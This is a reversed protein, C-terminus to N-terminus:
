KANKVIDETVIPPRGVPRECVGVPGLDPQIRRRHQAVDGLLRQLGYWQTGHIEGVVGIHGHRQAHIRVHGALGGGTKGHAHVAGAAHPRGHIEVRIEQHPRFRRVQVDGTDRSEGGLGAGDFPQQLRNERVERGMAPGDGRHAEVHLPRIETKEILRAPEIRAIALHILQEAHRRRRKLVHAVERGERGAAEGEVCQARMGREGVAHRRERPPEPLHQLEGLHEEVLVIEVRLRIREDIEDALPHHALVELLRAERADM